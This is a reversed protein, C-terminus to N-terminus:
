NGNKARRLKTEKGREPQLLACALAFSEAADWCPQAQSPSMRQGHLSSYQCLLAPLRDFQASSRMLLRFRRSFLPCASVLIHSGAWEGRGWM